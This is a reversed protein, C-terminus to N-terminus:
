VCLGLMVYIVYVLLYVLLLCFIVVGFFKVFMLLIVIWCGVDLIVGYGVFSLELKIWYILFDWIWFSWVFVFVLLVVGFFMVVVFLLVILFMRRFFMVNDDLVFCFFFFM